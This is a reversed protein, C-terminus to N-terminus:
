RTPRIPRRALKHMIGHAQEYVTRLQLTAGGLLSADGTTTHCEGTRQHAQFRRNLRRVIIGPWKM